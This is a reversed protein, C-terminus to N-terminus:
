SPRGGRVYELDAVRYLCPRISINRRRGKQIHAGVDSAAGHGTLGLFAFIVLLADDPKLRFGRTDIERGKTIGVIEGYPSVAPMSTLGSMFRMRFRVVRAWRGGWEGLINVYSDIRM